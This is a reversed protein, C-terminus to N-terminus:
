KEGRAKAWSDRTFTKLALAHIPGHMASGLASYVLQHQEILSKGVFADSVVRAQYHDKTGTLDLLEIEADTFATFLLKEVEAPELM